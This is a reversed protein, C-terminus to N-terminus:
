KLNALDFFCFSRIRWGSKQDAALHLVGMYQPLNPASMFVLCSTDTVAAYDAVFSKRVEPPIELIKGVPLPNDAPLRVTLKARDGAALYTLFSWIKDGVERYKKERLMDLIGDNLAAHRAMVTLHAAGAPTTALAAVTKGAPPYLAEFDTIFQRLAQALAVPPSCDSGIWAAPAANTTATAAVGRLDSGKAFAAATITDIQRPDDAAQWQTLLVGDFVPNYFAFVPRSSNSNGAIVFSGEFFSKWIRPVKRWADNKLVVALPGTGGFKDAAKELDAAALMRFAIAREFLRAAPTAPVAAEPKDAALGSAACLMASGLPLALWRGMPSSFCRRKM